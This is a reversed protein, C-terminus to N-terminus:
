SVDVAVKAAPTGSLTRLKCLNEAYDALHGASLHAYRLVMEFCSWGGLEQLVQLPTGSQVHWSAWTHRLDHWRFDKIGARVLAQRWAQTNVEKVPRGHYTFVREPHIGVQRRLVLVAEANLPIALAKKNKIQDHHIWAVRRELDVQSWELGIVNEKRLGTALSFRAAEAIHGPLESLLRDAEEKTLWRIRRKPEPLMRVSPSSDLWGWEREACRLVARAVELVRNVTSNAVSEAKRAQALNDLVDRNIEDLFRGYLHKHLWRLHLKQDKLSSLHARETLWREVAQEWRYRPREDLKAQRWLEAKLNTEYEEALKKDTTGASHRIERGNVTIRVWWLKSKSRKYLAM